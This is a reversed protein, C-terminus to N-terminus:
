LVLTYAFNTSRSIFLLVQRKERRTLTKGRLLSFVLRLSIRMESVLLKSGHWYHAAEHKVKAWIRTRWPELPEAPVNSSPPPTETNSAADKAKTPNTSTTYSRCGAALRPYLPYYTTFVSNYYNISAFQRQSHRYNAFDSAAAYKLSTSGRATAHLATVRHVHRSAQPLWISMGKGQKTPQHNICGTRQPLNLTKASTLGQIDSRKSERTKRLRSDVESHDLNVILEFGSGYLGVSSELGKIFSSSKM